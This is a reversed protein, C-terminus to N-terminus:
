EGGEETTSTSIAPGFDIEFTRALFFRFQREAKGSTIWSKGGGQPHGAFAQPSSDHVLQQGLELLIKYATRRWNDRAQLANEEAVEPDTDGPTLSSLWRRFADDILSYASAKAAERPGSVSESDGGAALYLNAALSGLRVVAEETEHVCAKALAVFPLGEPSLLSARILLIDNVLDVMTSNQTGYVIGVGQLQIVENADIQAGAEDSSLYGIWQIIGPPLYDQGNGTKGESPLLSELGRWLARNPDLIRPLYVSPLKLVREQNPSRRWGTLPDLEMRNHPELKDGNTLVVRTVRDGEMVLRVRRAQWTYVDAQGTPERQLGGPGCPEREWAPLDLIDVIAEPNNPRGLRLNLLLTERLNSGTVRVGGIRGTWGTGIPYSKGGKVQPDGVVGSKIGAMDYAHVHVLWRAAESFSLSQAAEGSRVTFFQFRDPVDAIIKKIETTEDRPTRLTAVQMFPCRDDFLDFRHRWRELYRRIKDIPLAESHWLQGWVEASDVSDVFDDASIIARQLIALLARLIAFDQTPLDGALDGIASANSFLGDLSMLSVSQDLMRVQIWPEDVLCFGVAESM